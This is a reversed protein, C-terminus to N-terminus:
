VSPFGIDTILKAASYRGPKARVIEGIKTATERMGLSVRGGDVVQFIANVLEEVDWAPASARGVFLGIELDEALQAFNYLDEWLPVIIQPIGCNAIICLRRWLGFSAGNEVSSTPRHQHKKRSRATHSGGYDARAESYKFLSGLNIVITPDRSLWRVLAPDQETAPASDLILAGVATMNPPIFNVPLSAEPLTQTINSVDDRFDFASTPEVGKSLLYAKAERVGHGFLLGIVVRLNIYINQPIQYWPVPFSFGTGM